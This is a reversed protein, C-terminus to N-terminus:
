ILPENNHRVRFGLFTRMRSAAARYCIVFCIAALAAFVRFFPYLDGAVTSVWAARKRGLLISSRDGGSDMRNGALKYGAAMHEAKQPPGPLQISFTAAIQFSATNPVVPHGGGVLGFSSGTLSPCLNM